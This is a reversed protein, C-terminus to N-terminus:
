PGSPRARPYVAVVGGQFADLWYYRQGLRTPGNNSLVPVLELEMTGKEPSWRPGAFAPLGSASFIGPLTAGPGLLPVNVQLQGDLSLAGEEVLRNGSVSYRRLTDLPGSNGFAQTRTWVGSDEFGVVEGELRQCPEGQVPAYPGTATAAQFPCAQTRTEFTAPDQSRSVVLLRSGARVLVAAIQDQGMVGSFQPGWRTAPAAQVGGEATFTYRYLDPLTAVLLENGSALRAHVQVLGDTPSRNPPFPASGTVVLPGTGTDVYRVVRSPEVLWVVDGSVVPHGSSNGLEQRTGEAGRMAAPGCLWTGQLTRDVYSCSTTWSFRVLPAESRRDEAVFVGFQQLSGVPAFAVLVHYRGTVTPMFRVRAQMGGSLLEATAPIPQNDPGHVEVTVSEPFQAQDEVQECFTSLGAPVQFVVEKGAEFLAQNPRQPTSTNFCEGVPGPCGSGGGLAVLALLLSPWRPARM